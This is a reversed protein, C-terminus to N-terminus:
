TSEGENNEGSRFADLKSELAPLDDRSIPIWQYWVEDDHHRHPYRILNNFAGGVARMVDRSLSEPFDAAVKRFEERTFGLLMAFEYDPFFPGETTARLCARIVDVDSEQLGPIRM